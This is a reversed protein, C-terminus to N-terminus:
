KLSMKCNGDIIALLADKMSSKVIFGDALEQLHAKYFENVDMSLIFVHTSPWKEKIIKTAEIGNQKPMHIDMLVLDPRLRSTKYIADEGDMAEAVFEVSRQSKLFSTLMNRFAHHDDVVLIKLKNM